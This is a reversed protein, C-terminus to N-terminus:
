RLQSWRVADLQARLRKNCFRWPSGDVTLSIPRGVEQFQEVPSSLHLKFDTLTYIAKGNHSM